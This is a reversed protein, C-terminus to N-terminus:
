KDCEYFALLRKPENRVRHTSVDSKVRSSKKKMDPEKAIAISENM